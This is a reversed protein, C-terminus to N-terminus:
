DNVKIYKILDNNNIIKKNIFEYLEKIKISASTQFLAPILGHILALLSGYLMNYSVKFAVFMYKSITKM